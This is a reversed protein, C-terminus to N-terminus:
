QCSWRRCRLPQPVRQPMRPGRTCQLHPTPTIRRLAALWATVDASLHLATRRQRRRKLTYVRVVGFVAVLVGNRLQPFECLM